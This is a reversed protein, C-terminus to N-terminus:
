RDSEGDYYGRMYEDYDGYPSADFGRIGDEYGRNYYRM